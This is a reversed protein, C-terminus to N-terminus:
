TSNSSYMRHERELFFSIIKYSEAVTGRLSELSNVMTISSLQVVEDHGKRMAISVQGLLYNLRDKDFEPLHALLDM